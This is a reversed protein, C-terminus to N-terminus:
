KYLPVLKEKNSSFKQQLLQSHKHSQLFYFIKLRNEHFEAYLSFTGHNSSQTQDEQDYVKKSLLFHFFNMKSQTRVSFVQRHHSFLSLM